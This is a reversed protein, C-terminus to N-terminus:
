YTLSPGWDSGRGEPTCDFVSWMPWMFDVHRLDQGCDTGAFWLESSWFHHIKNGRRVFVTAGPSQAGAAQRSVNLRMTRSPSSVTCLSELARNM